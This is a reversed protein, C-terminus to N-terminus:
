VYHKSVSRWCLTSLGCLSQSIQIVLTFRVYICKIPSNKKCTVSTFKLWYLLSLLFNAVNIILITKESPESTFYGGALASNM